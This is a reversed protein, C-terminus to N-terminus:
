FFFVDELSNLFICMSFGWCVIFIFFIYFFVDRFNCYFKWIFFRNLFFYGLINGLKIIGIMIFFIGGGFKFMYFIVNGYYVGM